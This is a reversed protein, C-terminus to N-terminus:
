GILSALGTPFSKGKREKVIRDVETAIEQDETEKFIRLLESTSLGKLSKLIEQKDTNENM